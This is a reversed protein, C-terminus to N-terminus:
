NYQGNNLLMELFKLLDPVCSFLGASGPTIIQNLVWASEDHIEGRVARGRWEDIETPVIQDVFEKSPNFFTRYMKLPNFFHKQALVPIKEKYVRELLVGLIISTANCYFFKEGPPTKLDSTMIVELLKEPALNKLGSLRFDFDLTHTFLHKVLVQERYQNDYEPVWDIVKDELGIEGTELLKLALSSTPISKTISAVDFITDGCMELSNEEFRFRGFPYVGRNGNRKVVGVVCGPFVKDDIAKRVVVELKEQITKDM